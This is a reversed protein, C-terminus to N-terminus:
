RPRRGTPDLPEWRPGPLEPYRELEPWAEAQIRIWTRLVDGPITAGTGQMPALFEDAFPEALRLATRSTANSRCRVAEEGDEGPPVFLTLINLALELRKKPDAEPGFDYHLKAGRPLNQAVARPVNAHVRLPRIPDRYLLVDTMGDMVPAHYVNEETSGM